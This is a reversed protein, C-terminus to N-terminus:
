VPRMGQFFTDGIFPPQQVQNRPIEPSRPAIVSFLASLLASTGAPMSFSIGVLVNANRPQRM